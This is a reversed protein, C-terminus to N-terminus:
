IRTPLGLVWGQSQGQPNTVNFDRTRGAPTRLARFDGTLTADGAVLAVGVYSNTQRYYSEPPGPAFCIRTPAGGSVTALRMELDTRAWTDDGKSWNLNFFRSSFQAMILWKGSASLPHAPTKITFTNLTVPDEKNGTPRYEGSKPVPRGLVRPSVSM